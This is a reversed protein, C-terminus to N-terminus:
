RPEQQLLAVAREIVAIQAAARVPLAHESPTEITFTRRAHHFYLVFAEPFEAMLDASVKRRIIGNKPRSIDIIRRDDVGIIHSASELLIEGWYPRKNKIEYIYLGRGDYDEHLNLALDFVRGSLERMHAHTSPAGTDHYTRNLDIGSDNTRQNNILGWPNLCPFITLNLTALSDINQEAWGVLGETSGPEDGHIGASLYLSPTEPKPNKSEIVFFPLGAKEHYQRMTLNSKSTAIRKWRRMLWAYDHSRHILPLAPTASRAM